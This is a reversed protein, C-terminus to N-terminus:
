IGLLWRWLPIMEIEHENSDTDRTILVLSIVKEGFEDKFELLGKEEREPPVDTYSVNIGTLSGDRNMVVFDVERGGKWYYPRTGRRMLELFVLNEALRGEDKSFVFSVANRLGNDICYAKKENRAQKKLSYSFYPVEFVMRAQELYGVYEMATKFDLNTVEGLRTYSYPSTMNSLLYYALSHIGKENRVQQMLAVDRYLISDYYTKLYEVKSREDDAIVVQPFGGWRLYESLLQLIEYKRSMLKMRDMSDWGKFRLFERFDLPYVVTPLYRGGIKSSLNSELLQSSSGSIVINHKKRDYLAKIWGQWGEIVQIEDFILYGKEEPFIERRYTEIVNVLPDEQGAIVPEECNVFLISRPDVGESLLLQILQNILTTKGARRVGTMALIEGTRSRRKMEALYDDRPIGAEYEEGTWWPNLTFLVELLGTMKMM